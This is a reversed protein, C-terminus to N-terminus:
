SPYVINERIRTIGSWAEIADALIGATRIHTYVSAHANAGEPDGNDGVGPIVSMKVFSGTPDLDGIVANAAAGNGSGINTATWLVKTLPYLTHLTTLFSSVQASFAAIAANKASTDSIGNIYANYDNGGANVIVYDPVFANVDYTSTVLSNSTDIGVRSFASVLNEGNGQNNKGNYGYLLGWGSASVFQFDDGFMRATLYGFAHLSSSNATTKGQGPQGIAGNGSIGSAGFLLFKKGSSEPKQCFEGTTSLSVVGLNGEVPENRRLITIVHYDDSLGEVTFTKHTNTIVAVEGEMPASEDDVCVQLYNDDPISQTPNNLSFTITLSSGLIRVSLGTGTYYLMMSATEQAYATRGIWRIGSSTTLDAGSLSSVGLSPYLEESSSSSAESTESSSSLSGMSYTPSCAALMLGTLALLPYYNKKM